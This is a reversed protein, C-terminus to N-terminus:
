LAILSYVGEAIANERNKLENIMTEIEVYPKDTTKLWAIEKEIDLVTLMSSEMEALVAKDINFKRTLFRVIKKEQEDYKEDSNAITLMNWLLQKPSVEPTKINSYDLLIDEIADEITEEYEESTEAKSLHEKCEKLLEEKHKDFEAILDRGISTLKEEEKENIEGDAAMLYCYVKVSNWFTIGPLESIKITVPSKEKKHVAGQVQKATDSGFKKANELTAEGFDKLQDAAKEGFEKAQQLAKEGFNKAETLDIEEISKKVDEATKSFKDTIKKFDIKQM